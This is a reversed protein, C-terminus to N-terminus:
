KRPKARFRRLDGFIFGHSYLTIKLLCYGAFGCLIPMEGAFINNFNPMTFWIHNQYLQFHFYPKGIPPLPTRGGVLWSWYLSGFGRCGGRPFPSPSLSVSWWRPRAVWRCGRCRLRCRCPLVPALVPFVPFRLPKLPQSFLLGGRFMSFRMRSRPRSEYM